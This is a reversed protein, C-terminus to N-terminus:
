KHLGVSIFLAVVKRVWLAGLPLRPNPCFKEGTTLSPVLHANPSTLSGASPVRAWACQSKTTRLWGSSARSCWPLRESSILMHREWMELPQPTLLKARIILSTTWYAAWVCSLRLLTKKYHFLLCKMWSVSNSWCNCVQVRLFLRPDPYFNVYPEPKTQLHHVAGRVPKM